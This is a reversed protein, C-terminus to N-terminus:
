ERPLLTLLQAAVTKWDFNKEAVKRLQSAQSPLVLCQPTKEMFDFICKKSHSNVRMLHATAEPFSQSIIDLNAAIGAQNMGIPFCGSAVAELLVMPGAEPVISPFVGVDISPLLKALQHHNLFGTFIVSDVKCHKAARQYDGWGPSEKIHSWFARAGDLYHQSSEGEKPSGWDLITDIADFNGQCLQKWLLEAPERYPGHGVVLFRTHPVSKMIQPLALLVSQLGKALIIRGVFILTKENEWDIDLIFDELSEDPLKSSYDQQTELWRDLESMSFKNPFSIQHKRGREKPLIQLFSQIETERESHNTCHFESTDVGVASRYVKQSFDEEPFLSELRSAIEPSVTFISEADRLASAALVKLREQRRVAYELASGHPIVTYTVGTQKKLRQAIVPMLLTHNAVLHHWGQSKVLPKLIDVNHQIYEEIKEDSLETLPIVTGFEEYHDKLFVPLWGKLLPKHFTITGGSSEFLTSSKNPSEYSYASKIFGFNEPHPEQCVIHAPVQQNSLAQLIHRTWLNSGSGDLLYGHLFAIMAGTYGM